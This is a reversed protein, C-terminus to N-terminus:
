QDRLIRRTLWQRRDLAIDVIRRVPQMTLLATLAVAVLIAVATHREHTWWGYGGARLGLRILAGHAVFVYFSHRGLHAFLQTRNPALTVCALCGLAAVTYQGGRLLLGELGSAGLSAYSGSGYLWRVPHQGHAVAVAAAGLLVIIVVAAPAHCRPASLERGQLLAGALFFPFFVAIRSLSLYYGLGDSLGAALGCAVATLLPARLLLWYPLVVRWVMLAVLYWLMWYPTAPRYEWAAGRLWSDFLTYLLQLILYPILLDRVLKRRQASAVEAHSCYGSIAAFLPMHFAYIFWYLSEAARSKQLLPEIVHGIVVLLILLGKLNDLKANRADM